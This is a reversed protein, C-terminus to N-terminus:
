FFGNLYSVMKVCALKCFDMHFTILVLSEEV